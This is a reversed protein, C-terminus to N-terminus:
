RADQELVNGWAIVAMNSIQECSNDHKMKELADKWLESSFIFKLLTENAFLVM